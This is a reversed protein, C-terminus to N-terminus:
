SYFDRLPPLRAVSFRPDSGDTGTRPARGIFLLEGALIGVSGMRAPRGFRLGVQEFPYNLVTLDIGEARIRGASLERTHVYDGIALTLPINM